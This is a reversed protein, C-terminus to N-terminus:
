GIQILGGKLVQKADASVECMAGHVVTKNTSKITTNVSNMTTEKKTKVSLSSCDIKMTTAKCELTGKDLKISADGNTITLTEKAKISVSKNKLNITILQQGDDQGISVTQNKDDLKMMLGKKSKIEVVEQDKQDNIKMLLGGLTKIQKVTNDQKMNKTLIADLPICSGVCIAESLSQNTFVIYVLDKLEPLIYCGQNKNVFPVLMRVHEILSAKSDVGLLRVNITGKWENKGYSEVIAEMYQGSAM